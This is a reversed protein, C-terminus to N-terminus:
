SHRVEKAIDNMLMAAIRESVKKYLIEMTELKNFDPNVEVDITSPKGNIKILIKYKKKWSLFDEMSWVTASVLNNDLKQSSIVKDNASQELEKLIKVSEDTPARHITVDVNRSGYNDALFYNM